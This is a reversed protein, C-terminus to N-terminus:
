QQGGLSNLIIESYTPSKGTLKVVDSKKNLLAGYAELSIGLTKQKMM